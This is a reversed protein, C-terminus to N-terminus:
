DQGSTKKFRVFKKKMSIHDVEYGFPLLEKKYNLFSHDLPVGAIHEIADFTLELTDKDSQAVYDWLKDYKSM